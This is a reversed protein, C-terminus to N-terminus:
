KDIKRLMAWYPVDTEPIIGEEAIEFGFHQYISVNKETNTELYCPVNIKDIKAFKARLLLSAYGKGQYVPDVGIPYLYWHPFNAYQKHCRNECKGIPEYRNFFEEGMRLAFEGWGCKIAKEETAEAEWYPLWVATGELNASISYVEGYMIGYRVMYEFVSPLKKSREDLNPFLHQIHPYDYFAQALVKGAAKAQEATLHILNSLGVM